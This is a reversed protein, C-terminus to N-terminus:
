AGVRVTGSPEIAVRVREDGRVLTLDLPDALGTPDLLVRGEGDAAIIARAGDSWTEPALPEEAIPQWARDVRREFRYGGGGVSLAIPRGEGIAGEQAARVRAAFREADNVLSGRPDPLALVVAAAALGMLVLVVMLEVLTFGAEAADSAPRRSM